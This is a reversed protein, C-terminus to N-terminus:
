RATSTRLRASEFQEVLELPYRVPAYPGNGLKVFAPGGGTVRDNTLKRESCKWRRALEKSTLLVERVEKEM